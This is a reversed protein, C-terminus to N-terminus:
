NKGIANVEVGMGAPILSAIKDPESWRRALAIIHEELPKLSDCIRDATPMKEVRGVGEAPHLEPCYLPLPEMRISLPIRPEKEPMHFGAQDMIVVHLAQPASEAIQNLFVAQADQKILSTFLLEAKDCSTFVTQRCFGAIKMIEAEAHAHQAILCM